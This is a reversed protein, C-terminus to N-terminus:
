SPEKGSVPLSRGAEGEAGDGSLLRLTRRLRGVRRREVRPRGQLRPASVGRGRREVGGVGAPAENVDAGLDVLFRVADAKKSGAALLFFSEGSQAVLYQSNTARHILVARM